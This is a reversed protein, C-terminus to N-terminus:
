LGPTHPYSDFCHSLSLHRKLTLETVIIVLIELYRQFTVLTIFHFCIDFYRAYIYTCNAFNLMRGKDGMDNYQLGHQSLPLYKIYRM